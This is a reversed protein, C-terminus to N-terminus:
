DSEPYSSNIKNDTYRGIYDFEMDFLKNKLPNLYVTRGDIEIKKLKVITCGTLPIPDIIGIFDKIPTPTPAKAAKSPAKTAKSPAKATSKAISKKAKPKPKPKPEAKPEAKPKPKPEPEAEAKPEADVIKKRPAMETSCLEVDKHAAEAAILTDDSVTWGSRIKSEYYPGEYIRSWEPIPGGVLGHLQESQNQMSGKWKELLEPIRAQKVLCSACLDGNAKNKCRMPLFFGYKPKNSFKSLPGNKREQTHRGACLM